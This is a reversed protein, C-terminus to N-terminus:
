SSEREYCEDLVAVLLDRGTECFHDEIRNDGIRCFFCRFFHRGFADAPPVPTSPGAEPGPSGATGAAPEEAAVVVGTRDLAARAFGRISDAGSWALSGSGAIEKLVARLRENELELQLATAALKNFAVEAPDHAPPPTIAASERFPHSHSMSEVGAVRKM